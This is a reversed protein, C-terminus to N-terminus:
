AEDTSVGLEDDRVFLTEGRAKVTSPMRAALLRSKAIKSKSVSNNQNGGLIIYYENTEGVYFGVHGSKPGRSFVMVAGIQPKAEVGWSVWNRAWYANNPVPEDPLARLICTEVFDGCWPFKRPDGLAKGDSALWKRLKANDDVEHWGLVRMGETLWPWKDPSANPAVPLRFMIALTNEGVIGDPYLNNAKQFAKIANITLKGKIGDVYKVAYGLDLLKQQISKITYRM